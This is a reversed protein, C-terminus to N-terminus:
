EFRYVFGNDFFNENGKISDLIELILTSFVSRSAALNENLVEVPTPNEKIGNAYDVSFGLLIFAIEGEGALVIEPGTTQSISHCEAKRFFAIEHKSNFRPGGSHAHTLHDTFSINLKKAASQACELGKFSFPRDFLYHGRLSDGAKQYLTCTEGGPLRNDVFFLDDFLLLSALPIQQDLIGMVSTSIILAVELKKFAMINARYNIVNPLQQHGEGHRPIFFIQHGNRQARRYEVDGFETSIKEITETQLDPFEYFGSGTIIGINM